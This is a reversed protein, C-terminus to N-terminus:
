CISDCYKLLRTYKNDNICRRSHHYRISNLVEESYNLNKLIDFSYKSHNFYKIVRDKNIFFIIKRLSKSRSILVIIPKVFLNISSYSKGIDHMLCMKVAVRLENDYIDFEKFVEICKKAVRISHHRETKLLRNFYLIERDNLYFYVFEEDIRKFFSFVYLIFQRIRYVRWM